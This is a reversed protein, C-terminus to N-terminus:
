RGAEPTYVSIKEASHALGPATVVARVEFSGATALQALYVNNEDFFDRSVRFGRQLKSINNWTKIKQWGENENARAFLDIVVPGQQTSTGPNRVTVRINVNNDKRRVLLDEIQADALAPLHAFVLLLAVILKRM